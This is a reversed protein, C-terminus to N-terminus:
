KLSTYAYDWDGLNSLDNIGRVDRSEITPNVIFGWPIGAADAVLMRDIAAWGAARAGSGVVKEAAKMAANIRPDDVRALSAISSAPRIPSLKM